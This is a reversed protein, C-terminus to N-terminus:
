RWRLCAISHASTALRDGGALLQTTESSAFALQWGGNDAIDPLSFEISRATPNMVLAMAQDDGAPPDDRETAVLLMTLAHAHHWDLGHLEEGDPARWEINALGRANVSRAHRYGNQRLLALDQRLAILKRVDALLAEDMSGWDLWGTDNDQAYANNNGSQTHGIEDGALLMPTGQSLLLTALLNRRQRDRLSVISVDNTEGEKGYNASYNHQHGDRNDEGNALNHPREYSVLDRLTFGDHSTIFNISASPPRGSVEFIDASGHLRRAIAPSQREDGRWYQRVVDRYRDNWEAWGPPFHGLQYGGPGIDWPEAILKCHRLTKDQTIKQLLPHNSDYGTFYRGLVPALDFRFGDVGMEGAWYRLSDVVLQQTRIHDVNLTNGTGTDNVYDGPSHPMVRYYALNDIGRLNLTPGNADGEATHNYVVDLIVEINADHLAGVMARFEGTADSNAYRQAPAFFSMSNYGWFNKLGRQHLFHEDAFAHVPLLEIATIGLAKLYDIIQGNSLGAFKGREANSLGPHRMTFGRVNTEYIISDRWARLPKRNAADARGIVVSKPMFPASDQRDAKATSSERHGFLARDWHLAGRLERAYPDTLLKAPNCRLGQSTVWEGHVRYGYGQGAAIGPVFGHWVDKHCDPLDYRQTEHGEGDFLCLEVRTAAASYLAFNTGGEVPTSGLQGPDGTLIM